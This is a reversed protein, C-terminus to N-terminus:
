DRRRLCPQSAGSMMCDGIEVRNLDIILHPGTAGPVQTLGWTSLPNCILMATFNLLVAMVIVLVSGATVLALVRVPGIWSLRTIWGMSREIQRHSDWIMQHSADRFATIDAKMIDLADNSIDQLDRQLSEMRSRTLDAQDARIQEMNESLRVSLPNIPRGTNM